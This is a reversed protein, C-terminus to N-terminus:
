PEAKETFARHILFLVAATLAAVPLGLLAHHEAIGRWFAKDHKPAQAAVLASVLLVFFAFSVVQVARNCRMYIGM